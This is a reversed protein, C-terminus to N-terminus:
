PAPSPDPSWLTLIHGSARVAASAAPRGVPRFSSRFRRCPTQGGGLRCSYAAHPPSAMASAAARSEGVPVRPRLARFGVGAGAAPPAALPAASPPPRPPRPHTPRSQPTCTPGAHRAVRRVPRPPPRGPGRPGSGGRPPHETEPTTKPTAGPRPPGTEITGVDAERLFNSLAKIGGPCLRPLAAAGALSMRLTGWVQSLM